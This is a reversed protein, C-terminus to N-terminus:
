QAGWVGHRDDVVLHAGNFVLPLESAVFRCQAIHVPGQEPPPLEQVRKGKEVCRRAHMDRLGVSFEARLFGTRRCPLNVQGAQRVQGLRGIQGVQKFAARPTLGPGALGRVGGFGCSIPGQAWGGAQARVM